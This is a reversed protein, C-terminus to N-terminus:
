NRFSRKCMFNKNRKIHKAHICNSLNCLRTFVCDFICNGFYLIFFTLCKLKLHSELPRYLPCYVAICFSQCRALWHYCLNTKDISEVWNRLTTSITDWSRETCTLCYKLMCSGTVGVNIDYDDSGATFTRTFNYFCNFLERFKFVRTCTTRQHFSCDDNTVCRRHRNSGAIQIYM